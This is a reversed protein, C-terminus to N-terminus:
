SWLDVLNIWSEHCDGVETRLPPQTFTLSNVLYQIRVKRVVLKTARARSWLASREFISRLGLQRDLSKRPMIEHHTSLPKAHYFLWNIGPNPWLGGLLSKVPLHFFVGFDPRICISERRVNWKPEFNAQMDRMTLFYTIYREIGSDDHVQMSQPPPPPQPRTAFYPELAGYM